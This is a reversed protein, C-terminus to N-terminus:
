GIFAPWCGVIVGNRILHWSKTRGGGPRGRHNLPKQAVRACATLGVACPRPRSHLVDIIPHSGIEFDSAM